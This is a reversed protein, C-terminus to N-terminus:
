TPSIRIGSWDVPTQAAGYPIPKPPFLAATPWWRGGGETVGAADDRVNGADGESSGDRDRGMLACLANAGKGRGNDYTWSEGRGVGAQVIVPSTDRRRRGVPRRALNAAAITAATANATTAEAVAAGIAWAEGRRANLGANLGAGLAETLAAALAAGLGTALGATGGAGWVAQFFFPDLGAGLGAGLGAVLGANLNAGRGAGM